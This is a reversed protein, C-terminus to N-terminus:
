IRKLVKGHREEIIEGNKFALFGNVFVYKIGVSYPGSEQFTALDKIENPDFITVDAALGEELRGRDKIGVFDATLGTMKHVALEMPMLKEDRVLPGLARAFTGFSRPHYFNIGDEPLKLGFGDSIIAVDPQQLLYSVEEYDMGFYVGWAGGDEERLIQMVAQGPRIGKEKAIEEISRGKYEPRPKGTQSVIIRSPGGRLDLNKEIETAIQDLLEPDDLRAMYSPIGGAQAWTGVLLSLTTSFADYPYVEVTANIGEERAKRIMELGKRAKGWNPKGDAKLHCIHVHVGSKRGVNLAEVVGELVFNDESRLHYACYAGEEAAVEGLAIMEAEDSYNGPAYELGFSIGWAGEKLSQRVIEKMKKTEEPDAKRDAWGVVLARLTGHPVLPALNTGPKREELAKVYGSFNEWTPGGVPASGDLAGQWLHAFKEREELNAPLPYAGQGCQGIVETTVGQYLKSDSHPNRFISRETHSHGDIIGPIVYLGTADIIEDVESIDLKKGIQCIKGDKLLVDGQYGPSNTGDVILGNQIWTTGM